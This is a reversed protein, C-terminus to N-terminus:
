LGFTRVLFVAMQARTVPAGPCYNGNGCGATIGDAALQEIWAAAFRGPAADGFVGTAAPPNYGAGYKARLLFVAMQDRTVVADPCYNGGGCGATIGDSALQEIFNAAFSGAGVDGFVTGTAAPPVFNSGNMGRELFVAMQARTVVASPCYSGGGCGSTIGSAGLKEIFESAFTGSSVDQFRGLQEPEYIGEAVGTEDVERFTIVVMTPNDYSIDFTYDSVLTGDNLRVIVTEFAGSSGTHNIIAFSDGISLPVTDPNANWWAADFDVVLNGGLSAAGAVDLQSHGTAGILTQFQGSNDQVYSNVALVGNPAGANGPAVTGGFNVVEGAISGTGELIGGGIQLVNNSALGNSGFFVSGDITTLSDDDLQVFTPGIPDGPLSQDLLGLTGGVKVWVGKSNEVRADGRFQLIQGADVVVDGRNKFLLHGNKLADGRLEVAKTSGSAIDMAGGNNVLLTRRAFVPPQVLEASIQLGEASLVPVVANDVLDGATFSLVSGAHIDVNGSGALLSESLSFAGSDVVLRADDSDITSRNIGGARGLITAGQNSLMHDNVTGGDVLLLADESPSAVFAEFLEDATYGPSLTSLTTIAQLADAADYSGVLTVKGTSYLRNGPGRVSLIGGSGVNITGITSPGSTNSFSLGTDLLSSTLVEITGGAGDDRKVLGGRIDILGTSRSFRTDNGAFLSNGSLLLQSDGSIAELNAHVTSDNLIVTIPKPNSVSGQSLLFEVAWVKSSTIDLDIDRYPPNVPNRAGSYVAIRGKITLDPDAPALGLLTFEGTQNNMSALRVTGDTFPTLFITSNRIYAGDNTWVEIGGEVENATNSGAEIALNITTGDFGPMLTSGGLAMYTGPINRVGQDPDLVAFSTTTLGLYFVGGEFQTNRSQVGPPGVRVVDTIGLKVFALNLEQGGTTVMRPNNSGDGEANLSTATVYLPRSRPVLDYSGATDFVWSAATISADFGIEAFPPPAPLLDGTQYIPNSAVEGVGPVNISAAVANVEFRPDVLGAVQTTFRPPREDISISLNGPDLDDPMKILKRGGARFSEDINNEPNSADTYQLRITPARATLEFEHGLVFDFGLAASLANYSFLDAAKQAVPNISKGRAAFLDTLSGNLPPLAVLAAAANAFDLTMGAMQFNFDSSISKRSQLPKNRATTAFILEENNETDAPDIKKLIDITASGPALEELGEIPYHNFPDEDVISIYPCSLGIDTFPKCLNPTKLPCFGPDDLSEFLACFQFPLFDFNFLNWNITPWTITIDIDICGFVCVTTALSFDFDFILTTELNFYDPESTDFTLLRGAASSEDIRWASDVYFEQGPAVTNAAPLKIDVKLPVSGDLEIGTGASAPDFLILEYGIEANGSVSTEIEIGFYKAVDFDVGPESLGLDFDICAGVCTIKGTKKPPVSIQGSVSNRLVPVEGSGYVSQTTVDLVATASLEVPMTEDPDLELQLDKTISTQAIALSSSLMLVSLTAISLLNFIKRLNGGCVGCMAAIATNSHRAPSRLM